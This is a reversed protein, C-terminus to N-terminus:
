CIQRKIDRYEASPLPISPKPILVETASLVVGSTDTKRSV